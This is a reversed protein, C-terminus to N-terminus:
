PKWLHMGLSDALSEYLRKQLPTANPPIDRQRWLSTWLLGVYQEERKAGTNIQVRGDTDVKMGDPVGPKIDCDVVALGLRM